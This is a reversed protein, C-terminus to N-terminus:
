RKLSDSTILAYSVKPLAAFSRARFTIRRFSQSSRKGHGVLERLQDLRLGTPDRVLQGGLQAARVCGVVPAQALSHQAAAALFEDLGEEFGADATRASELRVDAPDGLLPHALAKREVLHLLGQRDQLLAGPLHGHLARVDGLEHAV